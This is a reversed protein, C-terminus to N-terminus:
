RRGGAPVAVTRLLTAQQAASAAMSGLVRAFAGSEAAFASRRVVLALEDERRALARVARTPDGPVRDRGREEATGDASASEEPSPSPSGAAADELLAIHAAHAARAGSLTGELRPHRAVAADIRDLLDQEDAVVTMALAVDPLPEPTSEKAARGAPKNASNPTCATGVAVAGVAAVLATRRSVSPPRLVNM